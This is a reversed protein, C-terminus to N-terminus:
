NKSSVLRQPVYLPGKWLLIESVISLVLIGGIVGLTLWLGEVLNGSPFVEVRYSYGNFITIGMGIFLLFWLGVVFSFSADYLREKMEEVVEANYRCDEDCEALYGYSAIRIVINGTAIIFAVIALSHLTLSGIVDSIFISYLLTIALGFFAIITNYRWLLAIKVLLDEDSPPHNVEIKYYRYLLQRLFLYSVFSAVICFVIFDLHKSIM